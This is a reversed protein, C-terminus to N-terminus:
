YNQLVSYFLKIQIIKILVIERMDLIKPFSAGFIDICIFIFIFFTQICIQTNEM